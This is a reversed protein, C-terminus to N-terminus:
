YLTTNAYPLLGSVSGCQINLQNEVFTCPVPSFITKELLPASVVSNGCFYIFKSENRVGYVFVLEFHFM